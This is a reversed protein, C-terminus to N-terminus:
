KSIEAKEILLYYSDNDEYAEVVNMGADQFIEQQKKVDILQANHIRSDHNAHMDNLFKRGNDHAILLKGGPSLLAVLKKIIGTRNHLHPFVRFLIIKNFLGNVSEKEIDIQLIRVHHLQRTKKGAEKIMADSNDIGIIEGEYAKEELYPFLIGTGCGVDLIRDHPQINLKDLLSIVAQRDIPNDEDWHLAKENFFSHQCTINRLQTQSEIIWQCWQGIGEGTLASIEFIQLHHNVELLNEKLQHIDTPLFPSLDIKNIICIDAEIFMQPYKLPKDDGETPSIIVVKRNQGLDFIAPCVLNGVNEIFLISECIPNLERVAQYVQSAELHCGSGTNIQIAPIGLQRIRNADNSTQQDGEIVYIGNKGDLQQITKELLTTKGAGPSSMLNLAFINRAEFFGRVREALQNNASLIDKELSILETSSQHPSVVHSHNHHQGCGCTTCM